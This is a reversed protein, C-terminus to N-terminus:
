PHHEVLKLVRAWWCYYGFAAQIDAKAVFCVDSLASSHGSKPTFRVDFILLTVDAKSGDAVNAASYV